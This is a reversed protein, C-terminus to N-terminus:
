QRCGVSPLLYPLLLRLEEVESWYAELQDDTFSERAVLPHMPRDHEDSVLPFGLKYSNIWKWPAEPKVLARTKNGDSICKRTLDAIM